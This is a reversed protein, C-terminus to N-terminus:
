DKMGCRILLKLFILFVARVELSSPNEFAEHIENILFLLQNTCSDGPIFGSQNKTILGNSSLYSYLSNFILKEFIKGCIPLLSIPRYNKVLQKDEKKFIPTVDAVKWMDPYVSTDLVNKFIIKLPVVVSSDCLKLMQGSIGDSGSAKNPNLKRILSLIDDDSINVYDIRKDTIFYFDPLISDNLLLTCQKAFFDNFLKAKDVCNLVFQGNDLLPPIKPARSKNM